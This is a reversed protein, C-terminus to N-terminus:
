SPFIVAANIGTEPKGKIPQGSAPNFPHRPSAPHRAYGQGIRGGIRAQKNTKEVTASSEAAGKFAPAATASMVGFSNGMFM